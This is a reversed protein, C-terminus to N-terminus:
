FKFENLKRLLIGAMSRAQKAVEEFYEDDLVVGDDRGALIGQMADSALKTEIDMGSHHGYTPYAPLDSKIKGM